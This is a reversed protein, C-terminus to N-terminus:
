GKTDKSSANRTPKLPAQVNSKSFPYNIYDAEDGSSSMSASSRSCRPIILPRNPVRALPTLVTKETTTPSTPSVAPLVNTPPQPARYKKTSPRSPTSTTATNHRQFPTTITSNLDINHQIKYVTSESARRGYPTIPILRNRRTAYPSCLAKITDSPKDNTPSDNSTNHLATNSRQRRGKKMFSLNIAFLRRKTMPTAQTMYNNVENVSYISVTGDSRRRTRFDYGSAVSLRNSESDTSPLRDHHIIADAHDYKGGDKKSSLKKFFKKIKSTKKEKRELTLTELQRLNTEM